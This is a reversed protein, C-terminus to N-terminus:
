SLAHTCASPTSSTAPYLCCNSAFFGFVCQQINSCLLHRATCYDGRKTGDGVKHLLRFHGTCFVVFSRSSGGRLGLLCCCFGAVAVLEYCCCCCSCCCVIVFLLRLLLLPFLPHSLLLCYLFRSSGVFFVGVCSQPFEMKGESLSFHRCVQCAKFASIVLYGVYQRPLIMNGWEMVASVTLETWFCVGVCELIASAFAYCWTNTWVFRLFSFCLFHM